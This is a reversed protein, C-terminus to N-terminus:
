IRIAITKPDITIYQKMVFGYGNIGFRIKYFSGVDDVITVKTGKRIVDLAIATTSPGSRVNLFPANVIGFSYREADSAIAIPTIPTKEKEMEKGGHFRTMPSGIQWSSLFIKM